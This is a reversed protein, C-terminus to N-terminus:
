LLIARYMEKGKRSYFEGIGGKSGVTKTIIIQINIKNKYFANVTCLLLPVKLYKKEEDALKQYITNKLHNIM